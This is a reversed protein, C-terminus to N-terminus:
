PPKFALQQEHIDDLIFNATMQWNPALQQEIQWNPLSSPKQTIGFGDQPRQDGDEVHVSRIEDWHRNSPM